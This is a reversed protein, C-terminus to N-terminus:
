AAPRANLSADLALCGQGEAFVAVPNMDLSALSEGAAEAWRSVSVLLDALAGVDCPARGRIGALV